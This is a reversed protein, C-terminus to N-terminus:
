PSHPQCSAYISEKCRTCALPTITLEAKGKLGGLVCATTPASILTAEFLVLSREKLLCAEQTAKIDSLAPIVVDKTQQAPHCLGRKPTPTPPIMTIPSHDLVSSQTKCSM